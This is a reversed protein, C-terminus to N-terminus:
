MKWRRQFKHAFHRREDRKVTERSDSQSLRVATSVATATASPKTAEQDSQKLLHNKSQCFGFGIHSYNPAMNSSYGQTVLPNKRFSVGGYRM